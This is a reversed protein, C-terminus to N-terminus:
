QKNTKLDEAEKQHAAKEIILERLLEQLQDQLNKIQKEFKKRMEEFEKRLVSEFSDDDNSNSKNGRQNNRAANRLANEINTIHKANGNIIDEQDKIKEGQEVLTVSSNTLEKSKVELREKLIKIELAQSTIEEQLEDNKVDTNKQNEM